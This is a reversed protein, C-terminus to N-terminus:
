SEDTRPLDYSHLSCRLSIEGSSGASSLPATCAFVARESVKVLLAVPLSPFFSRQAATRGLDARLIYRCFINSM